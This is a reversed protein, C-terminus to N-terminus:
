DKKTYYTGRSKGFKEIYGEKLLEALSREITTQSIDPCLSAIDAKTIRGMKRDFVTRVRDAKSINRHHLYEVRDEFENYGKLVIGLYYKVFPMYDNTSNHWEMSSDKLVEYYTEKSKEILMEISIYKGVIYGARYLLLLTLLRSMRGNGDNFPHICLFDLVFMPILVLPDYTGDELADIFDTCLTQMADATQFAPVPIFRAKSKGDKDAEAIVNDSNKYSGGASSSSFSYLDRHLQIINNPRPMIYEYSEHITSLVDRYGSIEEESRNRPQSKDKVIAELREDSTWIGEIKNSAKTSQIKAIELLSSLVDPEAEIFLDQKGKLEHLRTLMNVVEPTLLKRPTEKYDFEHM